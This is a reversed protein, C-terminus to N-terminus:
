LPAERPKSPQKKPPLMQIEATQITKWTWALEPYPWDTNSLSLTSGLFWGRGCAALPWRCRRRNNEWPLPHIPHIVEKEFCCSHMLRASVNNAAQQVHGYRKM